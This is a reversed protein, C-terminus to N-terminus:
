NIIQDRQVPIRVIGKEWGEIKRISGLGPAALFRFGNTTPAASGIFFAGAVDAMRTILGVGTMPSVSIEVVIFDNFRYLPDVDGLSARDASFGEVGFRLWAVGDGLEPPTFSDNPYAVGFTSFVSAAWQTRFHKELTTYAADYEMGAM